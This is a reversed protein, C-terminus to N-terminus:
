PCEEEKMRKLAEQLRKNDSKEKMASVVISIVACVSFCLFFMVWPVVQGVPFWGFVGALIGVSVIICTFMLISRFMISLRKVFIDTFFIWRLSATIVALGLFQMMTAIPLGANGLIFISSYGKAEQGFLFCFICLSLMSISWVVMIHTFYDFITKKKIM